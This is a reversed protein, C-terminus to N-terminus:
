TLRRNRLKVVNAGSAKAAAIVGTAARSLEGIQFPKRLLPFQSVVEGAQDSYGTVLLVPIEPFNERIRRGLEIGDVPGPMVIDSIVLDFAEEEVMRYADEGNLATRVDYGLERCMDQTVESVQPNDDVVLVKGHAVPRVFDDATPTVSETTEHSRPLYITVTTGKGLESAIAVTGGAQHAFGHVQSLGLGTGKDVDKTTFFPEFVKPLVDPAIGQGEDTVRVAVFDGTLGAATDAATLTINETTIAVTGGQPMADRANLVLNVLALELENADVKVPWTASPTVTSIKVHGSVFSALLPKIVELREAANLVTPHFAQRRSFTLLQRTLTAGRQAAMEINAVAQTGKEDTLLRRLKNTQGIIITLLNNFDHAVGGTLQGIADMKQAHAHKAAAQEQAIQANRRETIDRTIKAYGILEGREDRVPDIIVNAWFLEGNKRVRWAETEFRGHQLAAYLARSPLGAARDGETYFRSFHQGIIEDATYGKIRAAGANWSTVVGNPDLMYLAYDTVNSVLLRFQRESEMLAEHASRRESIDRTVKAFGEIEGAENKIADVLVSAWFRSGDKRVRWGESEYRGEAAATALVRAPAGKARDEKTYFRSFHHGIIEDATYGKLREAGANWNTILGSPDLLYIAYDIVGDVLMRFHRESARLAEQAAVRDTMDRTIKAFGILTQQEDYVPHVIANAWFRSGNKRVRWGESEHRGTALARELVFQPQRAQQDDATFFRSFHQGVIEAHSYGKIRQAGENWSTIFGEPDLMYIAHDTIASVLLEFRPGDGAAKATVNKRRPEKDRRESINQSGQAKLRALYLIACQRRSLLSDAPHGL